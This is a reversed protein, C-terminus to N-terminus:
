KAGNVRVGAITAPKPATKIFPMKIGKIFESKLKKM